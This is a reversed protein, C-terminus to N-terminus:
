VYQTNQDEYTCVVGLEKYSWTELWKQSPDGIMLFLILVIVVVNLLILPITYNCGWGIARECYTKTQM